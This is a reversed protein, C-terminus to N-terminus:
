LNVSTTIPYLRIRAIFILSQKGLNQRAQNENTAITELVNTTSLDYFKFLKNNSLVPTLTTTM